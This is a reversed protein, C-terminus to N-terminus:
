CNIVTWSWVLYKFDFDSNFGQDKSWNNQLSRCWLLYPCCLQWINIDNNTRVPMKVSEHVKIQMFERLVCLQLFGWILNERCVCLYVICLKPSISLFKASQPTFVHIYSRLVNTNSVNDGGGWPWVVTAVMGVNSVDM